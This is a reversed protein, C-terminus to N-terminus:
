KVEQACKKVAISAQDKDFEMLGSCKDSSSIFNQFDSWGFFKQGAIM